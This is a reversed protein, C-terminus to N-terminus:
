LQCPNALGPPSVGHLTSGTDTILLESLDIGLRGPQCDPLVEPGITMVDCVRSPGEANGPRDDIIDDPFLVFAIVLDSWREGDGVGCSM